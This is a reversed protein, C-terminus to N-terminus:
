RARPFEVALTNGYKEVHTTLSAAQSVLELCVCVYMCVPM